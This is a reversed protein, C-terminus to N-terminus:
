GISGPEVASRAHLSPTAMRERVTMPTTARNQVKLRPTAPVAV